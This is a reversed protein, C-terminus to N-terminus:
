LFPLDKAICIVNESCPFFYLFQDTYSKRASWSFWFLYLEFRYFNFWLLCVPRLSHLTSYCAHIRSGMDLDSKWLFWLSNSQLSNVASNTGTRNWPTFSPWFSIQECETTEEHHLQLEEISSIPFWNWEYKEPILLISFMFFYFFDMEKAGKPKM